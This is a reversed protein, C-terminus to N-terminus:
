TGWREYLLSGIAAFASPAAEEPRSAFDPQDAAMAAIIWQADDTEFLGSDACNGLGLGTKNYVRLPMSFGFDTALGAHPLYRPLFNLFQQHFLINRCRDDLHTYVEALDRPTSTGFSEPSLAESPAHSFAPNVQASALGIGVMRQNVAEAGGVARLVLQTALNDSIIIMLWALDDLTPQLGPALYRLVGSGYAADDATTEIRMAPDIEGATVLASYHVLIFTKATSETPMVLDPNVGVCEGTILNRAYVGFTGPLEDCIAHVDAELPM